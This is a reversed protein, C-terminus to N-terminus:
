FFYLNPIAGSAVQRVYLDTGAVIFLSIWAYRMHHNNLKSIQTWM